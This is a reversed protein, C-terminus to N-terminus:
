YKGIKRVYLYSIRRNGGFKEVKFNMLFDETNRVRGRLKCWILAIVM